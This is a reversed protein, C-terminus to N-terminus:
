KNIYKKYHKQALNIYYDDKKINNFNICEWGNCDFFVDTDDEFTFRMLFEGNSLSSKFDIIQM